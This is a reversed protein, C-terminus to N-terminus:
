QGKRTPQPDKRHETESAARRGAEDSRPKAPDSSKGAPQSASSRSGQGEHQTHKKDM